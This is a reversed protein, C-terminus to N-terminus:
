SRPLGPPNIESSSVAEAQLGWRDLVQEYEGDQIIYNLVDNVPQILGNGKATAAAVDSNDPWGANVEGVQRITGTQAAAFAYTPNPGFEVDAQGSQLALNAAAQDDYYLPTLAALGNAVNEANWKLLIKEQNTGAGVIVRLGAVDSPQTISQISSDTPVYFGHIGLRYSSFDFLDKRAETVGVNSTILDYKGSQIGLPWDAWAVAVLNLKLGLGDAILQAIDAESGLITTNDDSAYFALPAQLPVIAVTLEGPTVPTFGSAELDAVADAVQSIRPRDAANTSTLDFTETTASSSAANNSANAGIATAVIGGIIAVVAVAGVIVTTQKRNIPM